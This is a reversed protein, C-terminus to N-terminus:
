RRKGCAAGAHRNHSRQSFAGRRPRWRVGRAKRLGSFVVGNARLEAQLTANSRSGYFLQLDEARDLLEPTPEAPFTTRIAVDAIAQSGAAALETCALSLIPQPSRPM